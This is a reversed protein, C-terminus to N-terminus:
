LNREGYGGYGGGNGSSPHGYEYDEGGQRSRGGQSRRGQGAAGGFPPQGQRIPSFPAMGGGNGGGGGSGSYEQGEMMQPHPPGMMGPTVYMGHPPYMLPHHMGPHVPYSPSTEMNHRSDSTSHPRKTSSGEHDSSTPDGGDDRQRKIRSASTQSSSTGASAVHQPTSPPQAPSAMAPHAHHYPAYFQSPDYVPPYGYPLLPQGPPAQPWGALPYGPPPYGPRFPPAAMPPSQPWFGSPLPPYGPYAPWQPPAAPGWSAPPMPPYPAYPHPPAPPPPPAAPTPAPPAHAGSSTTPPPVGAMQQQEVALRAAADHSNQARQAALHATSSGVPRGPGPKRAAAASSSSSSPLPPHRANPYVAGHRLPLEPMPNLSYFDPEERLDRSKEGPAPRRMHDILNPYGRLFHEHYYSSRDPGERRMRKFGWGNVQRIFSEYRTQAFYQPCIEDMFFDKNLVKWSRGHPMWSIAHHFEPNCLIDYLKMPFITETWQRGLEYNSPPPPPPQNPPAQDDQYDEIKASSM